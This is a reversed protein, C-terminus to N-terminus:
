QRFILGNGLCEFMEEVNLCKRCEFMEEDNM